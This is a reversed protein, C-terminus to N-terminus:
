TSTRVKIPPLRLMESSLCGLFPAVAKLAHSQIGADSSQWKKAGHGDSRVHHCVCSSLRKM